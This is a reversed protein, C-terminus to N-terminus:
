IHAVLRNMASIFAMPHTINGGEALIAQDLLVQAFDNFVEQSSIDLLRLVLPHQPNIALHLKQEPVSQGAERLMKVLHPALQDAGKVLCVPSDKLRRSEVVSDVKDGYFAKLKEILASVDRGSSEETDPTAVADESHDTASVLKFDKYTNMRGVLWEDIRDAMLIVEIGEKKFWELHPSWKAAELSESTLYYIVKQGSLMRAVYDELSVMDGHTTHFRLLKQLRELNAFDEVPGEKMTAGFANWFAQYKESDQALKELMDLVRNICGQRIVDVIDNKQLLERSVNLPLDHADIIGKIFRLYNPLFVDVGDMIYVRNVFLKIGKKMDRHWLDFPAKSPIYLLLTYDHAGEVKNHTWALPPEFDYSVDKYFNSYAEDDIEKKSLTWLAQAKNVQEYEGTDNKIFIPAKLYESYTNIIQRLRWLSAFETANDKLFLSIITGCEAKNESAIEYTGKGDSIWLVGDAEAADVRRTRVEVRDAVVFASYFGVGFQGIMEKKNGNDASHMQEVFKKTGSRALTGLHEIVEQANMGIGNDKIHMVKSAEDVDIEIRPDEYTYTDAHLLSMIKRKDIADSANSVLERVFVEPNSYLSHALLHLLESVEAAFAHTTPSHSM